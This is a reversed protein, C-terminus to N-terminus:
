PFSAPACRSVSSTAALASRAACMRPALTPHGAFPMEYAPTFIRVLAAARKSPLIFTSESLEDAPGVGAHRRTSSAAMKSCVYPIVRSGVAGSTFVNLIRYKLEMTM